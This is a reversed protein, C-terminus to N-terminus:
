ERRGTASLWPAWQDLALSVAPIAMIRTTVASVTLLASVGAVTEPLGIERVLVPAALVLGLAVQVVTRVVARGPHQVQTPMDPASHRGM